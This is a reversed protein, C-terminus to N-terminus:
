RKLIIQGVNEPKYFFLIEDTAVHLGIIIIIIIILFTFIKTVSHATILFRNINSCLLPLHFVIGIPRCLKIRKNLKCVTTIAQIQDANFNCLEHSWVTFM